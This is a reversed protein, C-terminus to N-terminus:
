LFAKRFLDINECNVKGSVTILSLVFTGQASAAGNLARQRLGRPSMTLDSTSSRVALDGPWLM